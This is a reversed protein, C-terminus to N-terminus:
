QKCQMRITPPTFITTFITTHHHHHNHHHHSPPTFITTLMTTHIYNDWYDQKYLLWALSHITCRSLRSPWKMSLNIRKSQNSQNIWSQWWPHSWHRSSHGWVWHAIGQKATRIALSKQAFSAQWESSLLGYFPIPIAGMSSAGHMTRATLSPRVVQLKVGHLFHVRSQVHRAGEACAWVDVPAICNWVNLNLSM